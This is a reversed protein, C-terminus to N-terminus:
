EKVPEVRWLQPGVPQSLRQIQADEQDALADLHTLEPPFSVAGFPKTRRGFVYESNAPRFRYFFSEDKRIVTERLAESQRQLPSDRLDVGRAWEEQSAKAVAQGDITLRYIGPRLGRVQLVPLRGALSPHVISGPPPPTQPLRRPTLRFEVRRVSMDVGQFEWPLLDRGGEPVILESRAADIEIRWAPSTGLLTDAFTFSTAWYGYDSLHIGDGTLRQSPSEAMLSTTASHLDVLPLQEEGAVKGIAAAYAALASAHPEFEGFRDDLRERAIPTVLVVRPPSEGNYRQSRLHTVLERLRAAFAEAGDPADLSEAMGFCVIVVDAQVRALHEDLSGFNLPRPQKSLTDGSWGLNRVTLKLDPRRLALAAEVYGSQRLNDALTDGIFVIRDGVHLVDAASSVSPFLLRLSALACLIAFFCRSRPDSERVRSENGKRTKAAERRQTLNQM